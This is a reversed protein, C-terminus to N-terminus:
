GEGAEGENPFGAGEQGDFAPQGQNGIPPQGQDSLPSQGPQQTQNVQQNRRESYGYRKEKIERLAIQAKLKAILIKKRTNM